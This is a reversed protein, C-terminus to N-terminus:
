PAWAPERVEPNQFELKQKIRGDISVASLIGRNGKRAAYLVMSGNNSFSPSEDLSGSTLVNLSGSALNMIAIKYSGGNAHVMVLKSGDPSFSANANYDGRMTLRHPNGGNSSIKYLQPKGSQSSTFVITQGDPSWTPETNIAASRTLQTLQKSALNLIYIDPSGGKSLTLALKRGDPSWAPAGNIGRYSAIKIRQGTALIQIFIAARHNEFSVYAIKKGDPSWAPSMIPEQSSVIAAANYGDVDAIQLKYVKNDIEGSSSVFAVKTGFVGKNGTLKAYVLDSIQHAARRLGNAESTIKYDMIQEGKSVDLLQFFIQYSGGMPQIKGILLYEQGLIQWNRFVIENPSSPKSLMEAEALTKFYGSRSLDAQVVASVDVPLSSNSGFPVVAIPVTTEFAKTIDINLEEASTIPTYIAILGLLTLHQLFKM